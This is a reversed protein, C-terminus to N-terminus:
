LLLRYPLLILVLTRGSVLTPRRVVFPASMLAGFKVAPIPFVAPNFCEIGAVRLSVSNLADVVFAIWNPWTERPLVAANTQLFFLTVKVVGVFYANEHSAAPPVDGADGGERKRALRKNASRSILFLVTSVVIVDFFWWEGIGLVLLLVAILVEAGFIALASHRFLLFGVLSILILFGCAALLLTSPAKCRKCEFEETGIGFYCNSANRPDCFCKSCLRGEYGEECVACSHESVEHSRNDPELVTFNGSDAEMKSQCTSCNLKWVVVGNERVPIVHCTYQRCAQRNPCPLISRTDNFTPVPFYGQPIVWVPHRRADISSPLLCELSSESETTAESVSHAERSSYGCPICETADGNISYTFPPCKICDVLGSGISGQIYGPPCKAVEIQLTINKILKRDASEVFSAFLPQSPGVNNQAEFSLSVIAGPPLQLRLDDFAYIGASDIAVLGAHGLDVAVSGLPSHVAAPTDIVNDLTGGVRVLTSPSAVINKRVDRLGLHSSFLKGPWVYLPPLTIITMQDMPLGCFAGFVDASNHLQEVATENCMAEILTLNYSITKNPPLIPPDGNMNIDPRADNENTDIFVAGGGIRAHNFVFCQPLFVPGSQLYSAYLAGGLEASNNRFSTQGFTTSAKIPGFM